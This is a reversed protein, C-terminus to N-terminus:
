GTGVLGPSRLMKEHRPKWRQRGSRALADLVPRGFGQLLLAYVPAVQHEFWALADDLTRAVVGELTLRARQVSGCFSEWFPLLPARSRNSDESPEVFDVFDRILSLSVNAFAESDEVVGFLQVAAAASRRGSLELEFRTFGRSDYCRAYQSSSRSGMSLTSGTPGEHWKHSRVGEFGPKITMGRKELAAVNPCRAATRVNDQMWHSRLEHPTFPCHDVALDLRSLRLDLGSFLVALRHLGLEECASGGIEVCCEPRSESSWVKVPGVVHTSTYGHYAGDRVEVSEDLATALYDVVDLVSMKTTGRLWHVGLSTDIAGTNCTPPLGALRQGGPESASAALPM